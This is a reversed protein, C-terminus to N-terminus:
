QGGDAHFHLGHGARAPLQPIDLSIERMPWGHTDGTKGLAAAAVERFPEARCTSERAEKDDATHILWTHNVSKKFSGNFTACVVEQSRSIQM